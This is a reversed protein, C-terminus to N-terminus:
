LKIEAGNENDELVSCYTLKFETLLERAIMECSMNDFLLCNYTQNFYKDILYQKITRNFDIFEVDRDDHNVVRKCEIHFKHRHLDSLFGMVPIIERAKEWRHLGEVEFKIIINTTM